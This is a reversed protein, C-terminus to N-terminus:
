ILFKFIITKIESFEFKRIDFYSLFLLYKIVQEIIFKQLVDVAGEINNIPGSKLNIIITNTNTLMLVYSEAAEEFRHLYLCM